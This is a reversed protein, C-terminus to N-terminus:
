ADEYSPYGDENEAFFEMEEMGTIAFLHYLYDDQYGFATVIGVATTIESPFLITVLAGAQVTDVIQKYTKDLTMTTGTTTATVVLRSGGGGETWTPYDDDGSAEFTVPGEITHYVVFKYRKDAAGAAPVVSAAIIKGTVSDEFVSPNNFRVWVEVCNLILESLLVQSKLRLTWVDGNKRTNVIYYSSGVSTGSPNFNFTGDSYVYLRILSGNVRIIEPVEEVFRINSSTTIYDTNFVIGDKITDYAAKSSLFDGSYNLYGDEWDEYKVLFLEYNDIAASLEEYTKDSTWTEVDDDIAEDYHRDHKINCIFDYNPSDSGGGSGIKDLAEEITQSHTKDVIAM